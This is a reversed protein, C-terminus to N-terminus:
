KAQTTLLWNSLLRVGYGTGGAPMVGNDKAALANGAIDLHAWNTDGAFHQLFVAATSAGPGSTGINKLDAIPTKLMDKYALPLRWVQEDVTKGAVTLETLLQESDTFIASYRNGLARVKSGTLTAVDIMTEVNYKERAYWMGDALILRGEADTNLVEVSLGEATTLVDGPAFSTASVMNAAMPMVAVVNVNAKQMAMAKVTGLVAAAGAMDSKMRSISSGAKINYGGSDFTIGKGVLAIPTDKSGEWHTIVLRSGELSGRGVAHLAGMGLREIEKPELITVKVGLKSLEKAANAFDVPTMETPVESTLDRALFVGAEIASLGQYTTTTKDANKVTFHYSKEVPKKESLYKDFQYARLNIGHALEAAFSANSTSDSIGKTYVQINKSDTKKLKAAVSAGINNVDGAVLESTDGLGVVVVRQANIGYPAVVEVLENKNGKFKAITLAQALQKDSKKILRALDASRNDGSQFVVLTQESQTQKAKTKFTFNEANANLTFTVAISATLLLTKAPKGKFLNTIM